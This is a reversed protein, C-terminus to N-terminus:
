FPLGENKENDEQWRRIDDLQKDETETRMDRVSSKRKDNNHSKTILQGKWSYMENGFYDKWDSAEWQEYQYHADVNLNKEKIYAEFEEFTPPNASVPTSKTSKKKNISEKKININDKHPENELGDQNLNKVMSPKTEKGNHNLKKVMCVDEDEDLFKVAEPNYRYEPRNYTPYIRTIYGKEVLRNIANLATPKSKINTLRMIYDLSIRTEEECNLTHCYILAYVDKESGSLGLDEVMWGFITYFKNRISRGM